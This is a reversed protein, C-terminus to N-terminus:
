AVQWDKATYPDSDREATKTFYFGSVVIVARNGHQIKLTMERSKQDQSKEGKYANRMAATQPM